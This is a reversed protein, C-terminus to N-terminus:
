GWGVRVPHDSPAGASEPRRRRVLRRRPKIRRIMAEVYRESIDVGINPLGLARAALLTQGSGAYPDFVVGQRHVTCACATLIRHPLEIPWPAPHDLDQKRRHPFRWVTGNGGAGYSELKFKARAFMLLVEHTPLFFSDNYNIGMGARDWVIEQRLNMASPVWQIPHILAGQHVRPKHNLFLAGDEPLRNWAALMWEQQEAYYQPWPKHDEFGAYGDVMTLAKASRRNRWRGSSGGLNYPPSTLVLDYSLTRAAALADGLYITTLSDEYAVELPVLSLIEHRDTTTM